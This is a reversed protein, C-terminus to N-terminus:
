HRLTLPDPPVPGNPAFATPTLVIADVALDSGEPSIVSLKIRTQAGALRTTGALYWGFGDGYTGVPDSNLLLTQGGLLIQVTRRQDTPIRAAVWVNQEETSRVPLNYEAFYASDPPIMTHLNLSYGNSCAANQVAESFNTNVPTEAELWTFAGLRQAARYYENRMTLYSAGPARTLSPIAQQFSMQELSMDKREATAKQALVAFRAMVEQIAPDPVPIEDVGTVTLPTEGLTVEVGNKVLKPAPDTGDASKFRALTSNSLRIVTRASTKAWITYSSVGATRMRYGFFSLGLDIREGDEPSPLWWTGGPLRQTAAPNTANEPYFLTNTTASAIDAGSVQSQLAKVAAVTEPTNAQVYFAKTGMSALERIRNALQVGDSSPALSSAMLLGPKSWRMVTSAPRGASALLASITEGSPRMAIGDLSSKLEYPAAWGAWEQIAPVQTTGKLAEVVRRFRRAASENVVATIDTWITSVKNDCTYTQDTKPDWLLSVGRSGQWLPVLRALDNFTALWQKDLSAASLLSASMSWSREATEITRYRRELHAAFEMQFMPSTPVFRVDKGPLSLAQGLPNVFGRLGQGFHTAKVASLLNDRWGDLGEWFDPLQYGETIPYLLLVHEAPGKPDVQYNFVGDICTVRESREVFGDRSSAFVAFVSKTGPLRLTIAKPTTIGTVRYAQPEVVIGPALPALSSLRLFYNANSKELRDVTGQWGSRRNPIDVILDKIGASLCQDVAQDSGDVAAGIPVYPAGAWNLTHKADISWSLDSAASTKAPAICICGFALGLTLLAIRM